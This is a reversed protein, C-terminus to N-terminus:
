FLFVALLVIMISITLATDRQLQRANGAAVATAGFYSAQIEPHRVSLKKIIGDLGEVFPVNKATESPKYVPQIFFMLHRRDKSLLYSDYVEINNDVQLQQLKKLVLFSFGLPDNVIIQKTVLGSPSILQRYNNNLTQKVIPPQIMSDLAAYDKEELFLPLNQQVSSILALVKSDDVQSNIEKIYPKLSRSINEVLEETCAVLSDPEPATTSDKISVMFILREAFKSNQFVYNLKEVREDDPFFRTIDEEIKIQSAGAGLLLIAVTFVSWFAPRHQKFYFYITLFIQEM